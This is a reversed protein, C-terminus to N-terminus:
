PSSGAMRGEGETLERSGFSCGVGAGSLRGQGRAEKWPTVRSEESAITWVSSGSGPYALWPLSKSETWERRLFSKDGGPAPCPGWLTMIMHILM